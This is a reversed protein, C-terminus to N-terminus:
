RPVRLVQGATTPWRPAPKAKAATTMAPISLVAVTWLIAMAFALNKKLM